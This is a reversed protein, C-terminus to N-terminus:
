LHKDRERNIELAVGVTSEAKYIRRKEFPEEPDYVVAFYESETRDGRRLSAELNAAQHEFNVRWHHSDTHVSVIDFDFLDGWHPVDNFRTFKDITTAVWNNRETFTWEQHTGDADFTLHGEDDWRDWLAQM